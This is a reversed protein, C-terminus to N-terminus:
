KMPKPLKSISVVRPKRWTKTLDQFKQNKLALWGVDHSSTLPLEHRERPVTVSGNYVSAGTKIFETMFEDYTRHTMAGEGDDPRRGVKEAGGDTKLRNINIHFDKRLFAYKAAKKCQSVHIADLQVRDLGSTM